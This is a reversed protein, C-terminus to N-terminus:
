NREATYLPAFNQIVTTKLVTMLKTIESVADYELICTLQLKAVQSWVGCRECIM